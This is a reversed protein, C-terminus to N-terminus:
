ASASSDTLTQELSGELASEEGGALSKLLSQQQAATAQIAAIDLQDGLGSSQASAAKSGIQASQGQSEAVAEEAAQSAVAELAESSLAGAGSAM